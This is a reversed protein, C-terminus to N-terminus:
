QHTFSESGSATAHGQFANVTLLTASGPPQNGIEFSFSTNGAADTPMLPLYRTGRASQIVVYLAVGAIPAHSQLDDVTVEVFQPGRLGTQRFRVRVRIDMSLSAPVQTPLQLMPTATRNTKPSNTELCWDNEARVRWQFGPAYRKDLAMQGVPSRKVKVAGAEVPNWELRARQFYQVFIGSEYRLQSVPYGFMESGGHTDYYDKIAFGIILGTEPFYRFNPDNWPPIAISRIPPDTASYLLGLMGLRVRYPEPDQPHFELRAFTFYQVLFGDEMFAETLPLGINVRGDRAEYFKLFVGHVNHSTERFYVCSTPYDAYVPASTGAIGLMTVLVFGILFLARKM